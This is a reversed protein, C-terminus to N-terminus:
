QFTLSEGTEDFYFYHISFCPFGRAGSDCGRFDDGPSAKSPSCVITLTRLKKLAVSSDTQECIRSAYYVIRNLFLGKPPVRKAQTKALIRPFPALKFTIHHSQQKRFAHELGKRRM